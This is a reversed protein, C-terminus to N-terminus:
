SSKIPKGTGKVGSTPPVPASKVPPPVKSAGVGRVTDAKHSVTPVKPASAPPPPVKAM